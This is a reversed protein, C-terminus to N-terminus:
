FSKRPLCKIRELIRALVAQVIVSTLLSFFCIHALKSTDFDFFFIYGLLIVFPTLLLSLSALISIGNSYKKLFIGILSIVSIVSYIFIGFGIKWFFLEEKKLGEEGDVIAPPRQFLLMYILIIAIPIYIAFNSLARKHLLAKKIFLLFGALIPNLFFLVTLHMRWETWLFGLDDFHNFHLFGKYAIGKTRSVLIYFSLTNLSYIMDM